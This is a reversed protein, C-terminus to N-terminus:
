SHRKRWSRNSYRRSSRDSPLIGIIHCMSNGSIVITKITSINTRATAERFCERNCTGVVVVAGNMCTHISLYYYLSQYRRLISPCM